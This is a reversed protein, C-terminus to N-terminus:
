PRKLINHKERYYRLAWFLPEKLKSLMSQRQWHRLAKNFDENIVLSCFKAHKTPISRFVSEPMGSLVTRWSQLHDRLEAPSFVRIARAMTGYANRATKRRMEQVLLDSGEKEVLRLAEFINKRADTVKRVSASALQGGWQYYYTTKTTVSISGACLNTRLSFLIDEAYRPPEFFLDNRILFERRYLKNWANHNYVLAPYNETTISRLECMIYEADVLVKSWTGGLVIDDNYTRAIGYLTELADSPLQDDADLFFLYQGTAARIGLNRAEGQGRNEPQELLTVRRDRSCLERIRQRLGAPSGDDVVLIELAPFTQQIISGLSKELASEADYVPIVVSILPANM